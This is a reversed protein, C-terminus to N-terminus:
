YDIYWNEEVDKNEVEYMLITPSSNLCSNGNCESCDTQMRRVRVFM